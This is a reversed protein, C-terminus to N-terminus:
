STRAWRMRSGRSTQFISHHGNLRLLRADPALDTSIPLVSDFATQPRNTITSVFLPQLIVFLARRQPEDRGPGREIRPKSAPPWISRPAFRLRSRAQAQDERPRARRGPQLNSSDILEPDADLVALQDVDGGDRRRGSRSPTWGKLYFDRCISYHLNKM